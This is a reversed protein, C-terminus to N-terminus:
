DTGAYEFAGVDWKSTGDADGDQPRGGGDADVDINLGYLSTFMSYVNEEADLATGVDIAAMSSAQLRLNGSSPAVFEPEGYVSGDAVSAFAAELSGYVTNYVRVRVIGELLNHSVTQVPGPWSAFVHNGTAEGQSDVVKAIINNAVHLLGGSQSCHIGADVDYLSNNIIFRNVGGRVLIAAPGDANDPDFFPSHINHIVNGVIYVDEGVGGSNSHLVIGAACDYIHNYLFWVNEPAYQLGMGHGYSSPHQGIPYHAHSDNQSFIVDKAQKSWLGGQKNHHLDNRGFYIHHSTHAGDIYSYGVGCADASTYSVENDLIWVYRAYKNLQIGGYDQDEEAQWDGIDHVNNNLFVINEAVSDANTGFCMVATGWRHHVESNRLVVHNCPGITEFGAYNNVTGDIELNEFVMYSANNSVSLKWGFRPPHASNGRIFVPDGATGSASFSRYGGNGYTGANLYILTGALLNTTTPLTARPCSPSGNPNGSDTANPHTNDVYYHLPNNSDYAPAVERVGFQPAPVGIPPVWATFDEDLLPENVPDNYSRSLPTLFCSDPEASALQGTWGEPVVQTYNGDVDTTTTFDVGSYAGSGTFALSLQGIKPRAGVTDTLSVTGTIVPGTFVSVVFTDEAFAGAMDTARITLNAAGTQNPQYDLTLTTGSVTAAVLSANDNASVGFTLSDDGAAVDVDDFVNSLNIVTDAADEEVIVDDIPHVVTPAHNDVSSSATAVYNGNLIASTVNAYVRSAPEFVYGDHEPWVTGSWGSPVTLTYTGDARTVTTPGDNDTVVSFGAVAAGDQDRIIGSITPKVQAAPPGDPIPQDGVSNVTVRFTDEAFAGAMDTARVTINALGIQSVQYDLTLTTGSISASLLAPNTNGSVALRLSDGGTAIDPDDFVMSVDIETDAVGGHVTVDDIPNVVEPPNNKSNPSSAPTVYDENEANATLCTYSRSLPYFTYDVHEPRVTGSWGSPVTLAYHGNGDTVATPGNNTSVITVGAIRIGSQDSVVGSITPLASVYAVESGSDQHVCAVPAFTGVLTVSLAVAYTGASEFVHSRMAHTEKPGSETEEGFTWAFTCEPLPDDNVTRATATLTLPSSGIAPDLNFVVEPYVTVVVLGTASRVRNATARFLFSDTGDFGDEPTYTVTATRLGTNDIVGLVGHLPQEVMEFTLDSNNPSSGSLTISIAKHITAVAISNVSPANPDVKGASSEPDVGGALSHTDGDEQKQNDGSDGSGDPLDPTVGGPLVAGTFPNAGEECGFSIALALIGLALALRCYGPWSRYGCRSEVAHVASPHSQPEQEAESGLVDVQRNSSSTSTSDSIHM